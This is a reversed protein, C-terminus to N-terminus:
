RKLWAAIANIIKDEIVDPLLGEDKEPDKMRPIDDKGSDEMVAVDRLTIVLGAKRLSDSLISLLKAKVFDTSLLKVVEKEITASDTISFVLKAMGGTVGKLAPSEILKKSDTKVHGAHLAIRSGPQDQAYLNGIVVADGGLLDHIAKNASSVVLDQQEEILWVIIQDRTDTDLYGVLKNVVPVLDDGLSQILKDIENPNKNERSEKTLKPILNEFCKEYNISQIEFRIKIM